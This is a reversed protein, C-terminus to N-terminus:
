LGWGTVSSLFILKRLDSAPLSTWNSNLICGTESFIKKAAVCTAQAVFLREAVQRFDTHNLGFYKVPDTNRLDSVKSSLFMTLPHVSSSAQEGVFKSHFKWIGGDDVTSTNEFSEEAIALMDKLKETAANRAEVNKFYNKKFRPDMLTAMAYMENEEMSGYSAHIQELIMDKTASGAATEPWADALSALLCQMLPIVKSATLNAELCIDDCVGKLPRYVSVVDRIERMVSAPLMGPSGDNAYLSGEIRKAFKVFRELQNFISKWTTNTGYILEWYQQGDPTDEVSVEESQRIYETIQKISDILTHVEPLMEFPKKAIGNLSQAFCFLLKDGGFCASFTNTILENTGMVTVSTVQDKMLGWEHLIGEVRVVLDDVATCDEQYEEFAITASRLESELSDIFNCTIGMFHRGNVNDSWESISLSYAPVVEFISRVMGLSDNYKQEILARLGVQTPLHSDPALVANYRRFGELETINLPLEDSLIMFILPEVLRKDVASTRKKKAPPPAAPAVQITEAVEEIEYPLTEILITDAAERKVTIHKVNVLPEEKPRRPSPPAFEVFNDDDASIVKQTRKSLPGADRVPYLHALLAWKTPHHSRLHQLLSSTSSAAKLFQGCYICGGGTTYKTFHAWVPSKGAPPRFLSRIQPKLFPNPPNKYYKRIDLFYIADGAM